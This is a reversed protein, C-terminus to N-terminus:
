GCADTKWLFIRIPSPVPYDFVCVTHICSMSYIPLWRNEKPHRPIRIFSSRFLSTQSYSLQHCCTQKSQNITNDGTKHQAQRTRHTNHPTHQAQLIDRKGATARQVETEVRVARRHLPAVLELYGKTQGDQRAHENHTQTRHPKQRKCAQSCAINSQGRTKDSSATSQSTVSQDDGLCCSLGREISHYYVHVHVFSLFLLLLALAHSTM